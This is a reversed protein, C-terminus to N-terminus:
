FDVATKVSNMDHVRGHRNQEGSTPWRHAGDLAGRAGLPASPRDGCELAGSANAALWDGSAM